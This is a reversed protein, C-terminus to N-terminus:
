KSQQNYWDIFNKESEEISLLNEFHEDTYEAVIDWNINHKDSIYSMFTSKLDETDLKGSQILELTKQQNYYKIFEICCGYTSILKSNGYTRVIHKETLKDVIICQNNTGGIIFNFKYKEIKDVVEMLWNWDTHYHLEEDSLTELMDDLTFYVEDNVIELNYGLFIAILRNNEITNNM